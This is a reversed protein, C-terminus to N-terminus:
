AHDQHELMCHEAMDYIGHQATDDDYFTHMIEKKSYKPRMLLHGNVAALWSPIFSVLKTKPWM